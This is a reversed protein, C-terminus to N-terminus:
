DDRRAALLFEENGSGGAIPSPVVGLVRWPDQAGIWDSVATVARARKQVDRVIGGKGVADRGAEFQPKILVVLVAGPATLALAPALVKTVSVFSVDAVVIGAAEPVIATTLDRADLGEHAIVRLDSAIRPHLQGHGVDICYVRAAGRQLLMDTFGGTSAGIDIAVLGALEIGFHDLALSLKEGGRSVVSAAAVGKELLSIRATPPVARAPKDCAAGDIAVLGRSILDRARSRSPALGEAVVRLDLRHGTM